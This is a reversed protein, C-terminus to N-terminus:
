GDNQPQLNSATQIKNLFDSCQRSIFSVGIGWSKKPKSKLKRLLLKSRKEPVPIAM